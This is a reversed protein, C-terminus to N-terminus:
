SASSAPMRFITTSHSPMGTWSRSRILFAASESSAITMPPLVEPTMEVPSAM